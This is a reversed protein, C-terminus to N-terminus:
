TNHVHPREQNISKRAWVRGHGTKGDVLEFVTLSRFVSPFFPCSYNDRECLGCLDRLKENEETHETFETLSETSFNPVSM